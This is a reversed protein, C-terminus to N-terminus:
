KKWLKWWSRKKEFVYYSGGILKKSDIDYNFEIWNDSDAMPNYALGSVLNNEVNIDALGDWSIRESHWYRGDSEVITLGTDDSLVFRNYSADFVAIYNMGFVSIPKTQNPNMIYCIGNAIVLINHSEQLVIVDSLDTCGPQFNAIWNTGDDKFFRVGFGESYFEEGSETISTYM